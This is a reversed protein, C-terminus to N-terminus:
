LTQNEVINLFENRYESPQRGTIIKFQKNFNTVSPFGSEYSVREITIKESKLLKCAYEVRIEKLFDSYSKNVRSKFYRSFSTNTMHILSAVEDLSIKRNFNKLTFEFIKNLRSAEVETNLIPINSNTINSTEHSISIEHLIELLLLINKFGKHHLMQNMIAKLKEKTKGVIEVGHKSRLLLQKIPIFEENNLLSNEIIKESFYIVSVTTSLKSDKRFYISDSKWVHPINPGILVMEDAEFSKINNGIFRKGEGQAVYTLQYEPHMHFTPDFHPENIEKIIYSKSEPLLPKPIINKELMM